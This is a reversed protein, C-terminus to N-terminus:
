LGHERALQRFYERDIVEGPPIDCDAAMAAASLVLPAEAPHWPTVCHADDGVLLMVWVPVCGDPLVKYNAATYGDFDIGDDGM